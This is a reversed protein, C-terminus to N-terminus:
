HYIMAAIAFAVLPAGVISLAVACIVNQATNSLPKYNAPLRRPQYRAMEAELMQRAPSNAPLGEVAAFAAIQAYSPKLRPLVFLLLGSLIPSLGLAIFFWAGGNRGRSSVLAAIVTAGAFWGIIWM